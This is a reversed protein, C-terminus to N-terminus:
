ACEDCIPGNVRHSALQSRHRVLFCWGCRFEDVQIPVVTVTLEDDLLDVDPIVFEDSENIDIVAAQVEAQRAKLDEISAEGVDIADGRPVDYDTTTM